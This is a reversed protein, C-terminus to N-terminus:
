QRAQKLLRTALEAVRPDADREALERAVEALEPANAAGLATLSALRVDANEDDLLLRLLRRAAAAPLQSADDVLRVRQRYDPLNLRQRLALERDDFGRQRLVSRILGAEHFSALPLRVFLEESSLTRLQTARRAMEQPTPIDLVPKSTPQRELALPRPPDKTAATPAKPTIQQQSIKNKNPSWSLGSSPVKILPNTSQLDRAPVPILQEPAASSKPRSIVELSGESARTLADLLPEPTTADQASTAVANKGNQAVTRLRPGRPPIAALVHSCDELLVRAARAPMQNAMNVLMLTVPEVWQKGAPGFEHIHEALASGIIAAASALQAVKSRQAAVELATMKENIIQRAITAVATRKSAAAVVLQEIATDGLEALQRLPIKVDRDEAQTIQEALRAALHRNHWNSLTPAVLLGVAVMLFTAAGTKILRTTSDDASM